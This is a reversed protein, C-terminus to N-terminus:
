RAALELQDEGVAEELFEGLAADFGDLELRAADTEDLVKFEPDLGAALPHARLLRACFSHITSISAAEAQRAGARDGEALLRARVRSRLEAAAKETFTIALIRDVPVEDERVAALFREVLVRTKGSGAGARVFLPGDRGAVATRQEGTLEVGSAGSM